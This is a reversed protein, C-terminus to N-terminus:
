QIQGINLHNLEIEEVQTEQTIMEMIMTRLEMMMKVMREKVNTWGWVEDILIGILLMTVLLCISGYIAGLYGAMCKRDNGSCIDGNWCLAKLCVTLVAVLLIQGVIVMKKPWKVSLDLYLGPM